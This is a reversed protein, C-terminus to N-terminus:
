SSLEAPELPILIVSLNDFSGSAFAANVIDEALSSSPSTWCTSLSGTETGTSDRTCSKHLIDCVAGPTMVGNEFIGDSAVVLHSNYSTLNTWGIIEPEATVGFRKFYVDGIARTMALRGNVRPVGYLKLIFGGSAEIRAKEDERDPHHNRTLEEASRAVLNGKADHTGHSCLVAKSDGVYGVLVKGNVLLVVTATSGADYAKSEDGKNQVKQSFESDIDKFTRLLAEELIEYLLTEDSPVIRESSKATVERHNEVVNKKPFARKYNIFVVHLFFYDLFKKSALTSVQEGGHGDFVAAVSLKVDRKGGKGLMPVELAPNCALRDEQHDRRGQITAFQCKELQNLSSNIPLVWQPCNPSEFVAPAGVVDYEMMCEVSVDTSFCKIACLFVVFGLFPTVKYIKM